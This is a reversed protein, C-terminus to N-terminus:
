FITCNKSKKADRKKDQEKNRAFDREVQPVRKTNNQAVKANHDKIVSSNILNDTIMSSHHIPKKLNKGDLENRNIAIDIQSEQIIQSFNVVKDRDPLAYM